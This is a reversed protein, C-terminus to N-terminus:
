AEQRITWYLSECPFHCWMRSSLIIAEAATQQKIQDVDQALPDPEKQKKWFLWGLFTM